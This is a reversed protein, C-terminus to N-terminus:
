IAFPVFYYFAQGTAGSQVTDMENIFLYLPDANTAGSLSNQRNKLYYAPGYTLTDPVAMGVLCAFVLLIFLFKKM